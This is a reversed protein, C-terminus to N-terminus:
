EKIFIINTLKSHAQNVSLIYSGRTLSLLRITTQKQQVLGAIIARGNIDYITYSLDKIILNDLVLVIHDTAPNPYLKATFLPKEIVEPTLLLFGNVTKSEPYYKIWQVPQQVGQSISITSGPLYTYFVEGFTYSSIGGKGVAEGGAPSIANQANISIAFFLLAIFLCQQKM